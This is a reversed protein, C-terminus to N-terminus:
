AAKRAKRMAMIKKAALGAGIAGATGAAIGAAAKPNEKIRDMAQQGITKLNSGMGQAKGQFESLKAKGASKLEQGAHKLSGSIGSQSSLKQAQAAIKEKAAARLAEAHQQQAAIKNDMYKKVGLGAATTGAAIGATAAGVGKRGKNIVRKWSYNSGSGSGSNSGSDSDSDSSSGSRRYVAEGVVQGLKTTLTDIDVGICLNQASSGVSTAVSEQVLKAIDISAM